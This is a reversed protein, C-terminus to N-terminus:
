RIVMKDSRFYAAFEEVAERNEESAKHYTSSLKTQLVIMNTRHQM